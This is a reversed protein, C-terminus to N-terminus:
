FSLYFPFVFAVTVLFLSFNTTPIVAIKSPESSALKDHATTRNADQVDVNGLPEPLTGKNSCLPQPVYAPKIGFFM